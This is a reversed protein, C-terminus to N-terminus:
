QSIERTRRMESLVELFRESEETAADKVDHQTDTEYRRASELARGFATIRRGALVSNVNKRDDRMVAEYSTRLAQKHNSSLNHYEIYFDRVRETRFSAKMAVPHLLFVLAAFYTPVLAIRTLATLFPMIPPQGDYRLSGTTLMATVFSCILTLILWLWFVRAITDKNGAYFRRITKPTNTRAVEYTSESLLFPIRTKM